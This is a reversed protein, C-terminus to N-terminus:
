RSLIFTSSLGDTGEHTYTYLLRSKPFGTSEKLESIVSDADYGSSWFPNTDIYVVAEKADGIFELMKESSPDDTVFFSNFRRLQVLDQTIAAFKENSIYICPSDSHADCMENLIVHDTFLNDPPMQKACLVTCVAVALVLLRGALYAAGDKKEDVIREVVAAHFSQEALHLLFCVGIVAIPTLNYVYRQELVPSIVATILFAPVVPVVALLADFRVAKKKCASVAGTICLVSLIMSAFAPYGIGRLKLKVKWFERIRDGYSATDRLAEMVSTGGVVQGNGIFLQRISAPFVATMLLVGLLACIAYWMLSNWRKKLAAYILYTVTLFFAYFAFYYQTMMGCFVVAALLFYLAPIDPDRIIRMTVSALLITFLALLTYMRIMMVMSMALVSTGYMLVAACSVAFSDFLRRVFAYLVILSLFFVGINLGLGIWKSFTGPFFSSVANFLWYYLPPHVDRAQNGYVSRFAFADDAGVTLYGNIEDKTFEKDTLRGDKLGSLYPANLSNSLGYSYVEDIFMGKKRIAFLGTVGACIAFVLFVAWYQIFFRKLKM